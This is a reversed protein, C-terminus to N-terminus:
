DDIEEDEFEIEAVAKNMKDSFPNKLLAKLLRERRRESMEVTDLMVKRRKIENLREQKLRVREDVSLVLDPEFTEMVTYKTVKLNDNKEEPITDQAILQTSGLVGFLCAGALYALKKM